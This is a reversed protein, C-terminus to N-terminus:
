EAVKSIYHDINSTNSPQMQHDIQALGLLKDQMMFWLHKNLNLPFTDDYKDADKPPCIKPPESCAPGLKCSAPRWEKANM